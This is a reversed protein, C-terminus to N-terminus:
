VAVKALEPKINAIVTPDWHITDPAYHCAEIFRFDNGYKMDWTGRKARADNPLFLMPTGLNGMRLVPETWLAGGTWAIHMKFITPQGPHSTMAQEMAVRAGPVYVDDDDLFCVYDGTAHQIGVAREHGGWNRGPQAQVFTCGALAARAEIDPTAGIVIVQDGPLFQSTISALTRELTPRGLTAVLVSVTM